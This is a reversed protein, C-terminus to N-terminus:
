KNSKTVDANTIPTSLFNTDDLRSQDSFPFPHQRHLNDTLFERVTAATQEDEDFDDEDTFVNQWHVRHLTEKETDTYVRENNPTSIYHPTNDGTGM